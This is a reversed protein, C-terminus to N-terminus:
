GFIDKLKEKEINECKIVRHEPKSNATKELADVLRRASEKDTIEITKLMSKTPM